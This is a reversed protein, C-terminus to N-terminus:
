PLPPSERPASVPSHPGRPRAKCSTHTAAATAGTGGARELGVSAEQHGLGEQRWWGGPRGEGGLEAVRGLNTGGGSVGPQAGAQQVQQRCSTPVLGPAPRRGPPPPGRVSGRPSSLSSSSPLCLQLHRARGAGRPPPVAARAKLGGERDGLPPLLLVSLPRERRHGTSM